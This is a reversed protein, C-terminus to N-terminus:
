NLTLTMTVPVIQGVQYSRHTVFTHIMDEYLEVTTEYGVVVSETIRIYTIECQQVQKYGVINKGNKKANEEAAKAGIIAGFITAADNGKGKGVQNGIVGGIIAGTIADAASAQGGGYIPVDVITCSEQPVNKIQDQMIATSSIVTGNITATANSAMVNTTFLSMTLAIITVIYKM